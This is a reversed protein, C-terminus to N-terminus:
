GERSDRPKKFLSDLWVDNWVPLPEGEHHTRRRRRSRINDVLESPAMVGTLMPLVFAFLLWPALLGALYMGLGELGVAVAIAAFVAFAIPFVIFVVVIAAARKFGVM